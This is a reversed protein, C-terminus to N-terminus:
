FVGVKSKTAMALTEDAKKSSLKRSQLLIALHFVCLFLMRLDLRLWSFISAFTINNKPTANKLNQDGNPSTKPELVTALIAMQAGLHLPAVQLGKSASSVGRSDLIIDRLAGLDIKSGAPTSKPHNLSSKNLIQRRKQAHKKVFQGHM